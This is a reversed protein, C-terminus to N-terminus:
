SQYINSIFRPAVELLVHKKATQNKKEKKIIGSCVKLKGSKLKSQSHHNSFLNCAIAKCPGPLFHSEDTYLLVKGGIWYWYWFVLFFFFSFISLLKILNATLTMNRKKYYIISRTECNTSKTNIICFIKSHLTLTSNFCTCNLMLLLCCFFGVM